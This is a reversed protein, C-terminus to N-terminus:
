LACSPYKGCGLMSTELVGEAGQMESPGKRFLKIGREKPNEFCLKRREGVKLFEKAQSSEKMINTMAGEAMEKIFLIKGSKVGIM